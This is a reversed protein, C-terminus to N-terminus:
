SIAVPWRGELALGLGAHDGRDELALRRPLRGRGPIGGASSRRIAVQRAFSGRVPALRHVVDQEIELPDGSPSRLRPMGAWTEERRLSRSRSGPDRRRYEQYRM